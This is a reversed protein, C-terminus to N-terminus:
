DGSLSIIEGDRVTKLTIPFDYFQGGEVTRRFRYRGLVGERPTAETLLSLLLEPDNGALNRARDGLLVAMDYANAATGIQEEDGFRARYRRRFEEDVANFPYVAGDMAGQAQEVENASEFIDTGFSPLGFGLTRAQRYFLSVQGPFLFVGVADYGGLRAIISKFDDASTSFSGIVTLTENHELGAQLADVYGQIYPTEAQVIAVKRLGKSRLYRLLVAVYQATYNVSRIVYRKGRAADPRQCNVITPIRYHEALPIVAESPAVGSVMLLDAGHVERFRHFAAVTQKPDYRDDEFVFRLPALLQPHEEQALFIGNRVANGFHAIQGSLPAAVGVILTARDNSRDEAAVSTATLSAAMLLRAALRSLATM